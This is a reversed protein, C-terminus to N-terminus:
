EEAGIAVFGAKEGHLPSGIAKYTHGAPDPDIGIVTSSYMDMPAPMGDFAAMLGSIHIM